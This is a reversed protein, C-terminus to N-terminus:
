HQTLQWTNYLEFEGGVEGFKEYDDGCEMMYPISTGSKVAYDVGLCKGGKRKINGFIPGYQGIIQARQM